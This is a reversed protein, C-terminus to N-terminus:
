RHLKLHEVDTLLFGSQLENIPVILRILLLSM